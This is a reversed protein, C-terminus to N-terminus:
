MTTTAYKAAVVAMAGARAPFCDDSFSKKRPLRWTGHHSAAKEPMAVIM